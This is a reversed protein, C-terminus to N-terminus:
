YSCINGLAEQERVTTICETIAGQRWFSLQHALAIQKTQIPQTYSPHPVQPEQMATIVDMACVTNALLHVAPPQPPAALTIRGHYWFSIVQRCLGAGQTCKRLSLHLRVTLLQAAYASHARRAKM